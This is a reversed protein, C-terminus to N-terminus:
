LKRFIEKIFINVSDPNLNVIAFETLVIACDMYKEANSATSMTEWSFNIFDLRPQQKKPPSTLLNIGMEKLLKLKDENVPHHEKVAVILSTTASAVIEGPFYRIIAKLILVHRSSNEYMEYIKGFIKKTAGYGLCQFVWDLPPEYL